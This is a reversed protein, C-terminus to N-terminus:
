PQPPSCKHLFGKLKKVCKDPNEKLDHEWFRIVHIGYESLKRRNKSDRHKNRQIKTKWYDSNTKPVHGCKPCGHWFCGDLFVALHYEPFFFDPKGVVEKTHLKWGRIGSRVLMLRFRLETTKNGKGKIASMTKSRDPPVNVFKGNSLKNRLIKEM